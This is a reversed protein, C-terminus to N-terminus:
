KFLNLSQKQQKSIEALRLKKINPPEIGARVKVARAHYLEQIREIALKKM